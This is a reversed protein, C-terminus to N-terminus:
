RGVGKADPVLASSAALQDRLRQKARHLRVRGAGDTMGLLGAAESVPLGEIATLMLLSADTTGLERIARYLDDNEHLGSDRLIGTQPPDAEAGRPLRDLVARYRRLSRRSNRALNTATVLLWPLTSDAVLHVKERRRWLEFFSAAVVDEADHYNGALRLSHRFVRGEHHDFIAAFARPDHGLARTWDALEDWSDEV